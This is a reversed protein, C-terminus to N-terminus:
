HLTTYGRHTPMYMSADPLKFTPYCLSLNLKCLSSAFHYLMGLSLNQTMLLNSLLCVKVNKSQYRQVNKLLACM